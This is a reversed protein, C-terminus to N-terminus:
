GTLPNVSLNIDEFKNQARYIIQFNSSGASSATLTRMIIFPKNVSQIQGAVYIMESLWDYAIASPAFKRPLM